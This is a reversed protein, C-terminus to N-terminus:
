TENERAAGSDSEAVPSALLVAAPNSATLGVVFPPIWTREIELNFAIRTDM